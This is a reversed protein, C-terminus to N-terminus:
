ELFRQPRAVDNKSELAQLEPDVAVSLSDIALKIDGFAGSLEKGDDSLTSSAYALQYNIRTTAKYFLVYATRIASAVVSSAEPATAVMELIRDEARRVESTTVRDPIQTVRLARIIMDADLTLGDALWGRMQRRLAYAQASLKADARSRHARDDLFLKCVQIVAFAAVVTTSIANVFEPWPVSPVAPDLM